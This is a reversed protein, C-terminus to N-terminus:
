DRRLIYALHGGSNLAKGVQYTAKQAGLGVWYADTTPFEMQDLPSVAELRVVTMNLRKALARISPKSYGHLHIPPQVFGYDKGRGGSRHLMIKIKSPISGQDPTRIIMLGGPALWDSLGKLLDYPNGVHELVHNMFIVDFKEGDKLSATPNPIDLLRVELDHDRAFNVDEEDVELGLATMGLAKAAKLFHGGGSGYDLLRLGKPDDIGAHALDAKLIKESRKALTDFSNRSFEGANFNQYAKRLAEQTPAPLSVCTECKPCQWVTFDNSLTATKKLNQEDCVACVNPSLM